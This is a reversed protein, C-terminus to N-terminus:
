LATVMGILHLRDKRGKVLYAIEKSATGGDDACEVTGPLLIPSRFEVKDVMRDPLRGELQALCRAATWMGHVIASRFGFPRATLASMHIPNRDGSVAAYNRGLNRPLRWQAGPKALLAAPPEVSVSVSEEATDKPTSERRLYTSASHWVLEGDVTVRTLLDITRGRRHPAPHTMEAEIGLAAGAPIPEEVTASNSVHVLGVAPFPSDNDTLLAMQLPFGLVHPYLVPLTSSLRGGVIATYSAIRDIDPKVGSLRLVKEPVRDKGHARQLAAARYTKLTGLPAALDIVPRDPDVM